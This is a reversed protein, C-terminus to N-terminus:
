LGRIKKGFIAEAEAAVQHVIEEAEGESMGLITRAIELQEHEAPTLVRDSLLRRVLLTFQERYVSRTWAADFRLAQADAVFDDWEPRSGPLGDLILQLKKRWRTRDYEAGGGSRLYNPDAAAAEVDAPAMDGEALGWADALRSRESADLKPHDGFVRKLTDLFGM